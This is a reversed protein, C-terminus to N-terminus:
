LVVDREKLTNLETQLLSNVVTIIQNFEKRRLNYNEHLFIIHSMKRVVIYKPCLLFDPM